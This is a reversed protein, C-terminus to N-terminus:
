LQLGSPGPLSGRPPSTPPIQSESSTRRMRLKGGKWKGKAAERTPCEGRFPSAKLMVVLSAGLIPVLEQAPVIRKYGTVNPVGIRASRPALLQAM